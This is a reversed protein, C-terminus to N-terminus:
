DCFSSRIPHLGRQTTVGDLWWGLQKVSELWEENVFAVRLDGLLDRADIRV